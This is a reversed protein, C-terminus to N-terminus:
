PEDGEFVIAGSGDVVRFSVRTKLAGPPVGFAEWSNAEFTFTKEVTRMVPQSPAAGGLALAVPAVAAGAATAAARGIFERRTM